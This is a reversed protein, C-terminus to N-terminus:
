GRETDGDNEDTFIPFAEPQELPSQNKESEEHATAEAAGEQATGDERTSQGIGEVAADFSTAEKRELQSYYHFALSLLLPIYLLTVLSGMVLEVAALTSTVLTENEMIWLPDILGFAILISIFYSLASIVFTQLFWVLLLGLTAWFKGGVLYQSMRFSEFFGYGELFRAPYYLSWITFLALAGLLVGLAGIVPIALLLGAILTFLLFGLVGVGFLGLNTGVVHWFSDKTGQWIDDADFQVSGNQEALRLTSFTLGILLVSAIAYCLLALLGQVAISGSAAAYPLGGGLGLDNGFGAVLLLIRGAVILPLVRTLALKGLSKRHLRLFDMAANITEPVTRIERLTVTQTQLEEM